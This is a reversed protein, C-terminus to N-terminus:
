CFEGINIGFTAKCNEIKIYRKLSSHYEFLTQNRDSNLLNNQQGFHLSVPLPEFYKKELIIKKQHLSFATLNSKSKLYIMMLEFVGRRYLWHKFITNFLIVFDFNQFRADASTLEM